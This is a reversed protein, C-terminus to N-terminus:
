RAISAASSRGAAHDDGCRVLVWDNWFYVEEGRREAEPPILAAIADARARVHIPLVGDAAPEGVRYRWGGRRLAEVFGRPAPPLFDLAPEPPAAACYFAVHEADFYIMDNEVSAGALLDHPVAERVDAASAAVEVPVWQDPQAGGVSVSVGASRLAAILAEAGAAM